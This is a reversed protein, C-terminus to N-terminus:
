AASGRGRPSLPTLVITYNEPDSFAEELAQSFVLRLSFDQAPIGPHTQIESELQRIAAKAKAMAVNVARRVLPDFLDYPIILSARRFAIVNDHNRSM